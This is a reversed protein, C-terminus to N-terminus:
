FRDSSRAPFWPAMRPVWRAVNKCYEVYEDGFRHKLDPEEILTIGLTTLAWLIGAWMLIGISGFLLTEALLIALTAMIM